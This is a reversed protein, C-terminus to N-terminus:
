CLSHPRVCLCYRRTRQQTTCHTRMGPTPKWCCSRTVCHIAKSGWMADFCFRSKVSFGHQCLPALTTRRQFRFMRKHPTENTATCLLSRMVHLAIHLVEQWREEPWGRHHLLLKITKWATQHTRECQSNNTLHDPTSRSSAIGREAFYAKLDSSMFSSVRDSYVCAPFGFLNNLCDVVTKTTM